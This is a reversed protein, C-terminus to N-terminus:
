WYIRRFYNKSPRMVCCHFSLNFFEEATLIYLSYSPIHKKVKKCASFNPSQITIVYYLAVRFFNIFQTQWFEYLCYVCSDMDALSPFSEKKCSFLIPPLNFTRRVMKQQSIFIFIGKFCIQNLTIDHKHGHLKEHCYLFSKDNGKKTTTTRGLNRPTRM